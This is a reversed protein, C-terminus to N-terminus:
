ELDSDIESDFVVWSRLKSELVHTSENREHEPIPRQHSRSCRRSPKNPMKYVSTEDESLPTVVRDYNANRRSATFPAEDECSAANQYAVVRPMLCSTYRPTSVSLRRPTTTLSGILSVSNSECNNPTPTWNKMGVDSDFVSSPTSVNETLATPQYLPTANIVKPLLVKPSCEEKVGTYGGKYPYRSLRKSSRQEFRKTPMKPSLEHLRLTSHRSSYPPSNCISEITSQRATRRFANVSDLFDFATDVNRGGLKNRKKPTRPRNHAKWLNLRSLAGAATTQGGYRTDRIDDLCRKSELRLKERLKSITSEVDRITPSSPKSQISLAISRNQVKASM